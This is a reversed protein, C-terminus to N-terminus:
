VYQQGKNYPRQDGQVQQNGASLSPLILYGESGKDINGKKDCQKKTVTNNVPIQLAKGTLPLM